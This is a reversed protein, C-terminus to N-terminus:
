KEEKSKLVEALIKLSASLVGKVQKGFILAEKCKPCLEGSYEMKEGCNGVCGFFKPKLVEKHSYSNKIISKKM